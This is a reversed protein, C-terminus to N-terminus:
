LCRRMGKLHRNGELLRTKEASLRLGSPTPALSLAKAGILESGILFDRPEATGCEGDGPPRIENQFPNASVSVAM